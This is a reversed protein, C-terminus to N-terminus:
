ISAQLSEIEEKIGDGVLIGDNVYELLLPKIEYQLRINMSGNEDSKDIFYSHGLAVYKPEFDNALYASKSVYKDDNTFFTAIKNFLVSDFKISSDKSLDRPLVDVFAFRRRIAYDIHDLSRDATNMTGIIYLNEPLMLVNDGEFDDTSRKLSYLSEVQSEKQKSESDNFYYRYELAYILEGLVSSLNARNIEDIILVFKDNPSDKAEQALEMLLKDKVDYSIFGKSSTEAVIGRVFDEYTFSPHFQVLKFKGRSIINDSLDIDEGTKLNFNEWLIRGFEFSDIDVNFEKKKLNFIENLKKNKEFANLNKYDVKFIKLANNLMKESNIPFYVDPYYINLIKLLFSNGFYAVAETTEQNNVVSHLIPVIEKLAENDNQMERILGHKSYVENKKDWYILYSRSSGPSYSGLPQLGHEIWWCFNNKDGNGVCYNKLTLNKISDKSFEDLFLTLLRARKARSEFNNEEKINFNKILENIKAESNGLNQSKTIEEVIKKALHTKGTGPPGQLIIQKKYKLLEIIKKLESDMTITNKLETITLYLDTSSDIEKIKSIAFEKKVEKVTGYKGGGVTSYGVGRRSIGARPNEENYFFWREVYAWHNWKENELIEVKKVQGYAIFMKNYRLILIDGITIDDYVGKQQTGSHLVFGSNEIIRDLNEEVYDEGPKGASVTFFKM